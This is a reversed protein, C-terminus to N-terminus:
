PNKGITYQTLLNSTNSILFDLVLPHVNFSVNKYRYELIDRRIDTANLMYSSSHRSSSINLSKILSNSLETSIDKDAYVFTILDSVPAVSNLQRELQKLWESDEKMDLLPLITINSNPYVKLILDKREQFSFPNKFSVKPNVGLLIILNENLDLAKNILDLHGNHLAQMRAVILSYM